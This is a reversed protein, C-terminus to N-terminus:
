RRGMTVMIFGPGFKHDFKHDHHGFHKFDKHDFWKRHDDKDDFWKRHDDKDDFWNRHDDKHKFNDVFFNACNFSDDIDLNSNANFSSSTASDFLGRGGFLAFTATQAKKGNEYEENEIDTKSCNQTPHIDDAHAAPAAIIAACLAMGAVVPLHRRAGM